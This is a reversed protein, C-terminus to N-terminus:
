VSERKWDILGQAVKDVAADWVGIEDQWALRMSPYWPSDPRRDLWYWLRSPGLPVLTWVPAGIAGAIHVTTNSVSVVIDLAAIQAAVADIDKNIDIHPDRVITINPFMQKAASIDLDVDSPAGYQLSVFVADPQAAFIPQWNKILDASKHVGLGVRHSRWSLGILPRDGYTETYTQRLSKVTVPDAVLYPASTFSGIDPRLWQGLSASSIQFDITSPPAAADPPRMSPIVIVNPFSRVLLSTLRPECEVFVRAARETLDKIMGAHLVQDGLGQEGCVLISKEALDEGQWVPYKYPRQEFGSKPDVKRFEYDEWGAAFNTTRLRMQGRNYRARALSPNLTVAQSFAQEAGANDDLQSRAIGLDCWTDASMSDAQVASELSSAAAEPKGLSLCTVGLNRLASVNNPQVSLALRLQTEAEEYRDTDMLVRALNYLAQAHTPQEVLAARLGAEARRYDRSQLHLSGLLYLAEIHAKDKKLIRRYCREAGKLDGSQHLDFGDRLLADTSKDQDRRAM